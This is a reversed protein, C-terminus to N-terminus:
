GAEGFNMHGTEMAHETAGREGKGNWGCVNCKIDFGATDTFYHKSQLVKCLEKAKELLEDDWNDFVKIDFEAPSDAKTHPPDSPSLAITDYHIGSYVLICRKPRGENFRDIRLDQVNISCVEIDFNQSLIALEIGGGWSDPNQIWRCYDDPKKQLVAENYLDPQEQIGSAVVSRLETMIDFGDGLVASGLARFMCSNDDPMVRLVMTAGHSPLPIEPPDLEGTNQKRTLSLPAAPAGPTTGELPHKLSGEVDRAVVILQEGGLKLGSERISISSDYQSLDLPKPPYGIKIDFDTLLTNESIQSKLDSISASEEINVTSVGSPGRIRIRM